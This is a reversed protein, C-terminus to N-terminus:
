SGSPSPTVTGPKKGKNAEAVWKKLNAVTIAENGKKPFISEGNLLATPTGQFGGNQFATNSKQVWADHKGDEVCSRFAPTDLGDVKKSLDILKGNDGFADDSEQPQNRYLVDHYAPFKGVDQACAAANAARLSGSGGLNGDILTAFHYDVKLQGSQELQHITDRFANEFQACVPCRFDEWVTLTSPADDAGVPITLSDKGTAGSPAVAPGSAKAKDGKGGTNAAIVGVVAALGLVGVVAASVILTRRRRERARAQERQQILRDRAARKGEQNKESM